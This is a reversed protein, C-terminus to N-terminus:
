DQRENTVLRDLLWSAGDPDNGAQRIDGMRAQVLFNTIGGELLGAASGVNYFVGVWEDEGMETLTPGYTALIEATQEKLSALHEAYAERQEETSEDIQERLSQVTVGAEVRATNLSRIVQSAINLRAGKRFLVGYGPVYQFSSDDSGYSVWHTDDSQAGQLSSAIIEAMIKLETRQVDSIGSGGRAMRVAALNDDRSAGTLEGRRVSLTIAEDEDGGFDAMFTISEDQTARRLTSGYQAVVDRLADTLRERYALSWEDWAAQREELRRSEEELAQEADGSARAEGASGGTGARRAAEALASLEAAREVMTYSSFANGRGSVRWKVTFLYGYGQMYFGSVDRGGISYLRSGPGALYLTAESGGSLVVNGRRSSADVTGDLEPPTEPAEVEGLATRVIRQMIRIDQPVQSGENGTSWASQPLLYTFTSSERSPEQEQPSAHANVSGFSVASVLATVILTVAAKSSTGTNRANM